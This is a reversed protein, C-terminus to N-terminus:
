YFSALPFNSGGDQGIIISTIGQSLVATFDRHSFPNGAHHSHTDIFGPALAQGAADTEETASAGSLDGIFAITDNRIGIDARIGPAGSGDYVIGNRIIRDYNEGKNNCSSFLLLGGALLTFLCYKM